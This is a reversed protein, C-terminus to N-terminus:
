PRVEENGPDRASRCAVFMEFTQRAEEIRWGAGELLARLDDWAFERWPQKDIGLDRSLLVFHNEDYRTERILLRGTTAHLGELFARPDGIFTLVSSLIVVDFRGPPIGSEADAHAFRLNGRVHRRRAELIDPEHVDMGLVSGAKGALVATLTGDSCGLDLVSDGSGIRELFYGASGWEAFHKPLRKGYTASVMQALMLRYQWFGKLFLKLVRVRLGIPLRRIGSALLGMMRWSAKAAFSV